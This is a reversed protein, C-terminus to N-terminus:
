ARRKETARGRNEEVVKWCDLLNPITNQKELWRKVLREDPGLGGNTKEGSKLDFEAASMSLSIIVHPNRNYAIDMSLKLNNYREPRFNGRNHADSQVEVIYAKLEDGLEKLTKAM